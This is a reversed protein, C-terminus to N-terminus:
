RRGPKPSAYPAIDPPDVVAAAIRRKQPSAASDRAENLAALRFVDM